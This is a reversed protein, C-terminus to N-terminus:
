EKAAEMEKVANRVYELAKEPYRRIFMSCTIHEKAGNNAWSLPCQRCSLTCEGHDDPKTLQIYATLFDLSELSEGM